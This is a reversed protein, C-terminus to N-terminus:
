NLYLSPSHWQVLAMLQVAPLLPDDKGVLFGDTNRIIRSLKAGTIPDLHGSEVLWDVASQSDLGELRTM